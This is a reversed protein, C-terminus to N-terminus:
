SGKRQGAFVLPEPLAGGSGSAVDGQTGDLRVVTAVDGTDPDTSTYVGNEDVKESYCKQTAGEEDSTECYLEPSKQEWKGTDVTAGDAGVASYTGDPKVDVTVKTGDAMTVEFKGTSPKGDAALTAVETAVAEPTADTDPAAPEQSCAAVLTLAAVLMIKKM